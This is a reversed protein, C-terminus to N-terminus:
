WKIVEDEVRSWGCSSAWSQAHVKHYIVQIHALARQMNTLYAFLHIIVMIHGPVLTNGLSSVMGLHILWIWERACSFSLHLLQYCTTFNLSCLFSPAPQLPKSAVFFCFGHTLLILSCVFSIWLLSQLPQSSAPLTPFDLFSVLQTGMIAPFQLVESTTPMIVHGLWM